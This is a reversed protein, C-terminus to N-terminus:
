KDWHTHNEWDHQGVMDFHHHEHTREARATPGGNHNTGRSANNSNYSGSETHYNQYGNGNGGPRNFNNVNQVNQQMNNQYSGNGRGPGGGRGNNGRGFRGGRAANRANMNNNNNNRPCFNVGDPNNFCQSWTHNGFHHPCPDNPGVIQQNNQGRGGRGNNREQHNKKNTPSELHVQSERKNKGKKDKDEADAFGKENTMFDIIDQLTDTEVKRGARIYARRWTDPFTRFILLKQQDMTKEREMGPLLNSYRYLIQMCNAHDRPEM